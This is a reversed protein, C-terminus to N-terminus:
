LYELYRSFNNESFTKQIIYKNTFGRKRLKIIKKFEEENVKSHVHWGRKMYNPNDQRM